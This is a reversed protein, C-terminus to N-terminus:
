FRGRPAVIRLAGSYADDVLGVMIQMVREKMDTVYACAMAHLRSRTQIRAGLGAVYERAIQRIAVREGLKEVYERVGVLIASHHWIGPAKLGQSYILYNGGQDEASVDAWHM